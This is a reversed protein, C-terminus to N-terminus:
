SGERSSEDAIAVVTSAADAAERVMEAIKLSFREKQLDFELTAVVQGGETRGKDCEEDQEEQEEEKEQEEKEGDAETRAEASAQYTKKNEKAADALRQPGPRPTKRQVKNPTRERWVLIKRVPCILRSTSTLFAATWEEADRLRWCPASESIFIEEKELLKLVLARVTGPLCRAADGAFLRNQSASYVFFNSSLGELIEQSTNMLLVEEIKEGTTEEAARAFSLLREKEEVWNTAKTQANGRGEHLVALVVCGRAANEESLCPSSSSSVSSSSSPSPPSSSSRAHSASAFVPGCLPVSAERLPEAYVLLCVVSSSSLSSSSLSSSSLSSSLSSSSLSSPPPDALSSSSSPCIPNASSFPSFPAASPTEIPLSTTQLVTPTESFSSSFSNQLSRTNRGNLARDEGDHRVCNGLDREKAECAPSKPTIVTWYLLSESGDRRPETCGGNQVLADAEDRQSDNKEKRNEGEASNEAARTPGDATQTAMEEGDCEEFALRRSRTQRITTSNRGEKDDANQRGEQFQKRTAGRERLSYLLRALRALSLRVVVVSFRWDSALQPATPSVSSSASSSANVPSSTFSPAVTPFFSPDHLRSAYRLLTKLSDTLAAAIDEHSPLLASETTRRLETEEVEAKEEGLGTATSRSLVYSSSCGDRGDVSLLPHEREKSYFSAALRSLHSRLLFM